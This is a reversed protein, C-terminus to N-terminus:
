HEVALDNSLMLTFGCPILSTWFRYRFVFSAM